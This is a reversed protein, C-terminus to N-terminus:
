NRIRDASHQALLHNIDGPLKQTISLPTPWLPTLAAAVEETVLKVDAGHKSALPRMCQSPALCLRHVERSGRNRAPAIVRCLPADGIGRDQWPAKVTFAVEVTRPHNDVLLSLEATGRLCADPFTGYILSEDDFLTSIYRQLSDASVVVDVRSQLTEAKQTAATQPAPM